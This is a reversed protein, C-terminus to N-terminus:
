ALRRTLAGRRQQRWFLLLGAVALLALGAVLPLLGSPVDPITRRSAVTTVQVSTNSPGLTVGSVSGFYKSLRNSNQGIYADVRYRQNAQFNANVPVAVAYENSANPTLNGANEYVGAVRQDGFEQIILVTVLTDGGFPATSELSRVRVQITSQAQGPTPLLLAIALLIFSGLVLRATTRKM